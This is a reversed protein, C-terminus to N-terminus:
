PETIRTFKLREHIWSDNVHNCVEYLSTKTLWMKIELRYETWQDHFPCPEIQGCGEIGLLCRTFFSDGELSTIIDLLKIDKLPKAIFVGGNAGRKSGIIGPEQLKALLQSLYATPCNLMEALKTASITEGEPSRGILILATLVYQSGTSLLQM